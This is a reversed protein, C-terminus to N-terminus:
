KSINEDLFKGYQVHELITVDENDISWIFDEVYMITEINTESNKFCMLINEEKDNSSYLDEACITTEINTEDDEDEDDEDDDTDETEKCILYLEQINGCPDSFIISVEDNFDMLPTDIVDFCQSTRYHRLNKRVSYHRWKTPEIPGTKKPIDLNKEEIMSIIAKKNWPVNIEYKKIRLLYLLEILTYNDYSPEYLDFIKATLETDMEINLSSLLEEMVCAFEIAQM